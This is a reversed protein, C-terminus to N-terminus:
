GVHQAHFQIVFTQQALQFFAIVERLLLYVFELSHLLTPEELGDRLVEVVVLLKDNAGQCLFLRADDEPSRSKM